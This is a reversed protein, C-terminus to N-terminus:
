QQKSSRFLFNLILEIVGKCTYNLLTAILFVNIAVALESYIATDSIVFIHPLNICIVICRVRRALGAFVFSLIVRSQEM